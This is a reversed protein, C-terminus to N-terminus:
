GKAGTPSAGPRSSRTARSPTSRSRRTTAKARSALCACATPAGEAGPVVQCTFAALDAPVVQVPGFAEGDFTTWRVEGKPVQGVEPPGAVRWFLALHGGHVASVFRSAPVSVPKSKADAEAGVPRAADLLTAPLAEVAGQGSVRAVRLAGDRDFGLVFVHPGLAALHVPQEFGLERDALTGSWTRELTEREYLSFFWDEPEPGGYLAVVRDPTMSVTALSGARWERKSFELEDAEIRRFFFGSDRSGGDYFVFGGDDDVIVRPATYGAALDLHWQALLVLLGVLLLLPLVTTRGFRRWDLDAPPSATM